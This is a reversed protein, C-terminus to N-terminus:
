PTQVLLLSLHPSQFGEASGAPIMLLFPPEVEPNHSTWPVVLEAYELRLEGSEQGSSLWPQRSRSSPVVKMGSFTLSIILRISSSPQYRAATLPLRRCYLCGTLGPRTVTGPLSLLSNGGPVSRLM